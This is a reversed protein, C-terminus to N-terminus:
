GPCLDSKEDSGGDRCDDVGNCVQGSPIALGSVDCLFCIHQQNIDCDVNTTTNFFEVDGRNMLDFAANSECRGCVCERQYM